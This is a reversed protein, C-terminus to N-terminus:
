YCMKEPCYFCLQDGGIRKRVQHRGIVGFCGKTKQSVLCAVLDATSEEVSQYVQVAVPKILRGATGTMSPRTRVISSPRVTSFSHGLDM